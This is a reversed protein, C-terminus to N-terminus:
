AVNTVVPADVVEVGSEALRTLLDRAAVQAIGEVGHEGAAFDRVWLCFRQAAEDGIGSQQSLVIM